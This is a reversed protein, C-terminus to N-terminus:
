PAFFKAFVTLVIISTLIVIWTVRERKEKDIHPLYCRILVYATIIYIIVIDWFVDPAKAWSATFNKIGTFHCSILLLLLGTCTPFERFFGIIFKKM